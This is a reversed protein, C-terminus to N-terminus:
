VTNRPIDGSSILLDAGYAVALLAVAGAPILVARRRWWPGRPGDGTAEDGPPPAPTAAPASGTVLADPAGSLWDRTVPRTDDAADGGARPAAEPSPRGDPADGRMRVTEDHAPPHQPMPPDEPPRRGSTGPFSPAAPGGGARPPVPSAAADDFSATM